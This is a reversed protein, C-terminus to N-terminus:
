HLYEVAKFSFERSKKGVQEIILLGSESIGSIRGKFIKGESKYNHWKGAKYLNSIYENRIASKDGNLLQKYRKDLNNLVQRLCKGTDFDKGTIIKLSAPDPIGQNFIEQNINIGIGAVTYEIIQGIISNEILIGAIKGGNVYIDNPWKIKINSLYHKLFDCIGLSIAMSILFQEDPSVSSPYLIISFLLNKGRESEWINGYQGKGAMQFSACIVTGESLKKERIMLSATTNTSDLSDFHIIDSGIIM